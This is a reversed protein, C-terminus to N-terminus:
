IANVSYLEVESVDFVTMPYHNLILNKENLNIRMIKRM